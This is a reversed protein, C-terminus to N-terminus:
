APWERIRRIRPVIKGARLGLDTSVSRSEKMLNLVGTFTADNDHIQTVIGRTAHITEEARFIKGPHRQFRAIQQVAEDRTLALGKTPQQLKQQGRTHPWEEVHATLFVKHRGHMAARPYYARRDTLRGM